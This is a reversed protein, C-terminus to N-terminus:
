VTTSLEAKDAIVVPAQAEAAFTAFVVENSVGSLVICAQSLPKAEFSSARLDNPNERTFEQLKLKM